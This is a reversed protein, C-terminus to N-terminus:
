HFSPIFDFWDVTVYTGKPAGLCLSLFMLALFTLRTLIAAALIGLSYWRRLRQPIMSKRSRNIEIVKLAIVMLVGINYVSWDYADLYANTM